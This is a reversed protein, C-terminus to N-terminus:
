SHELCPQVQQELFRHGCVHRLRAREEVRRGRRGFESQQEVIGGVPLNIHM